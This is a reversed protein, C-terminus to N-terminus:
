FFLNFRANGGGFNGTNILQGASIFLNANPSFRYELGLKLLEKDPYSLNNISIEKGITYSSMFGSQVTLKDTIKYNYLVWPLLVTYDIKYSEATGNIVDFNHETSAAGLGFDIINKTNLSWMAGLKNETLDASFEYESISLLTDIYQKEDYFNDWYNESYVKLYDTLDYEIRGYFNRKYNKHLFVDTFPNKNWTRDIGTDYNASIFFYLRNLSFRINSTITLPTSNNKGEGLNKIDFLIDNFNVGLYAYVTQFTFLLGPNLDIAAKEYSLGTECLIKFSENIKYGLGFTVYNEVYPLHRTEHNRYRFRFFFDEGIDENIVAEENNMLDYTTLSGYSLQILSGDYLKGERTKKWETSHDYNLIPYLFYEEVTSPNTFPYSCYLLCPLILITYLLLKKM